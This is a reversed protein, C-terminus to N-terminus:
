GEGAETDLPTGTDAHLRYDDLLGNVALWPDGGLLDRWGKLWAEVDDGRRAQHRAPAQPRSEGIAAFDLRRRPAARMRERLGDDGTRAQEAEFQDRQAYQMEPTVDCTCEDDPRSLSADGCWPQHEDPEAFLMRIKEEGEATMFRALEERYSVTAPATLDPEGALTETRGLYPPTVCQWLRLKGADRAMRITQWTGSRQSRPDEESFAPFGFVQDAVDVLVRNRDAYSTGPPMEMVTVLPLGGTRTWWPDVQSRNCPVVVVHEAAPRTVYLWAGIWADGGQCAGTVYRDAQPVRASLVSAVVPPPPSFNFRSATFSIATMAAM